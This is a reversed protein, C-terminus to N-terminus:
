VSCSTRELRTEATSSRIRSEMLSGVCIWLRRVDDSEVGSGNCIESEAGSDMGDSPLSAKRTSSCRLRGAMPFNVTLVVLRRSTPLPSPM